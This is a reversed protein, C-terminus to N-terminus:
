QTEKEACQAFDHHCSLQLQLRKMRWFIIFMHLSICLFVCCFEDFGVGFGHRVHTVHDIHNIYFSIKLPLSVHLPFFYDAPYISVFQCFFVFFLWFCFVFIM